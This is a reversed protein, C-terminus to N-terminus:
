RLLTQIDPYFFFIDIQVVFKILELGQREKKKVQNSDVKVSKKGNM